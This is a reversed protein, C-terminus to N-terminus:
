EIEQSSKFFQPTCLVKLTEPPKVGTKETFNYEFKDVYIMNSWTSEFHTMTQELRVRQEFSGSGM